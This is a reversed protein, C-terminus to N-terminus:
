DKRRNFDALGIALEDTNDAPGIQNTRECPHGLLGHRRFRWIATLQGVRHQGLQALPGPRQRPLVDDYAVTDHMTPTDDFRFFRAARDKGSRFAYRAHLADFDLDLM